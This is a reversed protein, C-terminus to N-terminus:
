RTLILCVAIVFASNYFHLSLEWLLDVSGRVFVLISSPCEGKWHKMWKKPANKIIGEDMQLLKWAGRGAVFRGADPQIFAQQALRVLGAV